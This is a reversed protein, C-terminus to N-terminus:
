LVDKIAFISDKVFLGHLFHEGISFFCPMQVVDELVGDPIEGIISEGLCALDDAQDIFDTM